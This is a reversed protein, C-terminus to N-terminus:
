VTREIVTSKDIYPKFNEIDSDFIDMTIFYRINGEEIGRVDHLQDVKLLCWRNTEIPSTEAAVSDNEYWRVSTNSGGTSFYYNLAWKRGKDIHKPHTGWTTEDPKIKQYTTVNLLNLKLGDPVSGYLPFVINRIIWINCEPPIFTARNMVGRYSNVKELRPDVDILKVNELCRAFFNDPMKPLSLYSFYM